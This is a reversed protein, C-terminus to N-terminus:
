RGGPRIHLPTLEGGGRPVTLRLGSTNPDKFAGRLRDVRAATEPDAGAPPPAKWVVTVRYDGPPAGDGPEYTTLSFRGEEDAAGAPAVKWPENWPESSYLCVRAGVAPRGEVLVIGQVAVPRPRGEGCGLTAAALILSVVARAM